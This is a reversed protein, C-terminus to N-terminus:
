LKEKEISLDSKEFSKVFQANRHSSHPHHEMAKACICQSSWM